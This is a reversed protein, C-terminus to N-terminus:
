NTWEIAGETGRDSNLAGCELVPPAARRESGVQEKLRAVGVLRALVEEATLTRLCELHYSCDRRGWPQRRCAPECALSKTIAFMRRAPIMEREPSTLGFVGLTPTGVAVGLHMLGSDNSVLAACQQILAATDEIALKGTFDIAHAPWEFARGFYTGRNDLDSETGVIVVNPLMRALADFGHWKKWPWGPKCGPHLAVTGPPLGFDAPSAIVFPEPLPGRWGLSQAIRLCCSIDGEQIWQRQDFAFRSRATVLAQLGASWVTFTAVDYTEAQLGNIKPETRRSWQSPMHFLRRIEAAGELLKVTGPYDPALVADVEYGLAALARVLPTIRIIDGIGGAATVLASRRKM